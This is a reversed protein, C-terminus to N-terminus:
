GEKMERISRVCNVATITPCRNIRLRECHLTRAMDNRHSDVVITAVAALDFSASKDRYWTSREIEIIPWGKKAKPMHGFESQINHYESAYNESFQVHM